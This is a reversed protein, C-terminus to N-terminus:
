LKESKYAAVAGSALRISTFKGYLDTGAPITIGGSAISDGTALTNTLASFVTDTLTTIKFIDVAIAWSTVIYIVGSEGLQQKDFRDM